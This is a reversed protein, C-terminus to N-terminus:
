GNASDEHELKLVWDTRTQELKPVIRPLRGERRVSTVPESKPHAALTLVQQTKLWQAINSQGDAYAVDVLADILALYTETEIKNVVPTVDFEYAPGASVINDGRQHYRTVFKATKDDRILVPQKM